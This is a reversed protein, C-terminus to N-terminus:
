HLTQPGSLDACLVEFCRGFANRMRSLCDDHRERFQCDGNCDDIQPFGGHLVNGVHENGFFFPCVSLTERLTPSM